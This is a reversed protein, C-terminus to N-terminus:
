CNWGRYEEMEKMNKKWQCPAAALLAALAALWWGFVEGRYIGILLSDTLPFLMGVMVALGIGAYVGERGRIKRVLWLGGTDTLLYPTLLYVGVRFAGGFGEGPCLLALLCLVGLHVVGLIALRALIVSRVSFRTAMELEWMGYNETRGSETILALALFPMLSSLMWMVDRDMFRGALLVALVVFSMAWVWKRIYLAQTLVFRGYGIGPPRLKKLFAQKRRPSPAEFAEALMKKWDRNKQECNKLDGNMKNNNWDGSM